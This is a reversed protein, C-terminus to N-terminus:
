IGGYFQHMKSWYDFENIIKTLERASETLIFLTGETNDKKTLLHDNYMEWINIILTIRDISVYDIM